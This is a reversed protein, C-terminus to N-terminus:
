KAPTSETKPPNCALPDSAAALSLGSGAGSRVVPQAAVAAAAVPATRFAPLPAFSYGRMLGAVAVSQRQVKEQDLPNRLVLRIRAVADALGVVDAEAPTVLLTAVPLAPRGPAPEAIPNIKLVEVNELVTKLEADHSAGSRTYVAQVDVRHGSKLMAVVGSSDHVQVSIARMGTPIGLGGGTRKNALRSAVLPEGPAIATLATLGDVQSIAVFPGEPMQPDVWAATKVDLPGVTAGRAIEKVAVVISPTANAEAGGALKGAVLGYFVATCAVAMAFAVVLIPAFNKKM